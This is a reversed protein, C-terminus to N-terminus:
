EFIHDNECKFSLKKHTYETSTCKSGIYHKDLFDQVSQKAEAMKNFLSLDVYDSFDLLQAVEQRKKIINSM